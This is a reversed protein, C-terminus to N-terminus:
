TISARSPRQCDSPGEVWVFSECGERADICKQLFDEEKWKMAQEHQLEGVPKTSLNKYM